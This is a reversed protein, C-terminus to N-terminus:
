KDKADVKYKNRTKFLLNYLFSEKMDETREEIARLARVLYVAVVISVAVFVAVAITAVFFFIDAHIFSDGPM